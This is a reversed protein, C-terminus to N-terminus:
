KLLERNKIDFLFLTDAFGGQEIYKVLQKKSIPSRYFLNSESVSDPIVGIATKLALSDERSMRNIIFYNHRKQGVYVNWFGNSNLMNFFYYGKYRKLVLSDSLEFETKMSVRDNSDVSTSLWKKKDIKLTGENGKWNGRLPRPMRHCVKADVPLPQSFYFTLCSSFLLTVLLSLLLLKKM